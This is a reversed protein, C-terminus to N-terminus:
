RAKFVVLADNPRQNMYSLKIWAASRVESSIELEDM